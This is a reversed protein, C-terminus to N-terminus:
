WGSEMASNPKSRSSERFKSTEAAYYRERLRAQQHTLVEGVYELVPENTGIPEAAVLGFGAYHGAGRLAECIKTDKSIAVRARVGGITTNLGWVQKLVEYDAADGSIMLSRRKWEM